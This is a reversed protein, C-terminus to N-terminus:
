QMLGELSKEFLDAIEGLSLIPTGDKIEQLYFDMWNIGDNHEIIMGEKEYLFCYSENNKNSFYDSLSKVIRYGPNCDKGAKIRWIQQYNIHTNMSVKNLNEKQLKQVIDPLELM